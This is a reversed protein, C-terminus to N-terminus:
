TKRSPKVFNKSQLLPGSSWRADKSVAGLLAEEPHPVHSSFPGTRQLSCLADKSVAGLPAEEPHPVHTPEVPKKSRQFQVLSELLGVREAGM